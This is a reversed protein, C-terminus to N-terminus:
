ESTYLRNVRNCSFQFFKAFYEVSGEEAKGDHRLVRFQSGTTIGSLRKDHKKTTQTRRQRAEGRALAVDSVACPARFCMCWSAACVATHQCNAGNAPSMIIEAFAADVTVQAYRAVRRTVTAPQGTRAVSALPRETQSAWTMPQTSLRRTGSQQKAPIEAAPWLAQREM